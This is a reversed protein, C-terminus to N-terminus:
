VTISNKLKFMKNNKKEVGWYRNDACPKESVCVYVCVYDIDSRSTSFVYACNFAHKHDDDDDRHLVSNGCSNRAGSNLDFITIVARRQLLWHRHFDSKKGIGMCVWLRYILASRTEKPEYVYQMHFPFKLRSPLLSYIYTKIHQLLVALIIYYHASRYCDDCKTYTRM